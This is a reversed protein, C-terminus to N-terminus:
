IGIGMRVKPSTLSRLLRSEYRRNKACCLRAGGEGGGLAGEKKGEERDGVGKLM